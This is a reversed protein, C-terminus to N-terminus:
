KLLESLVIGISALGVLYHLAAAIPSGPDGRDILLSGALMGTFCLAYMSLVNEM